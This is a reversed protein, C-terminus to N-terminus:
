RPSGPFSREGGRFHHEVSLGSGAFAPGSAPALWNSPMVRDTYYLDLPLDQAKLEDLVIPARRGCRGGGAAGNVLVAIREEMRHENTTLTKYSALFM